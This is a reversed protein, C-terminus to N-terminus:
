PEDELGILLDDLHPAKPARQSRLEIAGQTGGLVRWYGAQNQRLFFLYRRDEELQAEDEVWTQHYGLQGGEILLSISDTPEGKLHVQPSIWVM